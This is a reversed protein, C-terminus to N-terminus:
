KKPIGLIEAVSEPKCTLFGTMDGETGFDEFFGSVRSWMHVPIDMNLKHYELGNLLSKGAPVLALNMLKKENLLKEFKHLVDVPLELYPHGLALSEVNVAKKGHIIEIKDAIAEKEGQCIRLKENEIYYYIKDNDIYISNNALAKLKRKEKRAELIEAPMEFSKPTEFNNYEAKLKLPTIDIIVKGNEDAKLEGDVFVLRERYLSFPNMMEFKEDDIANVQVGQWNDGLKYLKILYLFNSNM